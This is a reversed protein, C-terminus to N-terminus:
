DPGVWHLLSAIGVIALIVAILMVVPTALIARRWGSTAQNCAGHAPTMTHTRKPRAM